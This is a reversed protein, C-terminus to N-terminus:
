FNPLSCLPSTYRCSSFILPLVELGDAAFNFDVATLFHCCRHTRGLKPLMKKRSASVFCSGNQNKISNVLPVLPAVLNRSTITSSTYSIM